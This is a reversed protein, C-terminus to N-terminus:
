KTGRSFRFGLWGEEEIEELLTWGWLRCQECYIEREEELVGSVLSEGPIHHLQPLSEWAVLQESRIMNMLIVVPTADSRKQYNQPLVFSIHDHMKNLKANDEAHILAQEEIDIGVVDKSAMAIACLALVGSGCGIDIVNKEEVRKPMLKLVLRTTPHSLDGFGPGSKLRLPNWGSVQDESCGFQCLDVHVYGDHYDLGHMAWQSSWDIDPLKFPQISTIAPCQTLVFEISLHNPLSGIITNETDPDENSYLIEINLTELEQWADDVSAKPDISFLVTM